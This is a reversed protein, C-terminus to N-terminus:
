IGYADRYGSEVTLRLPSDPIVVCFHGRKLPAMRRCRLRKTTASDTWSESVFDAKNLSLPVLGVTCEPCSPGPGMM